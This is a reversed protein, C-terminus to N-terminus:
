NQVILRVQVMQHVFQGEHGVFYGKKLPSKFVLSSMECPLTQLLIQLGLGLSNLVIKLDETHRRTVSFLRTLRKQVTQLHSGLLAKSM